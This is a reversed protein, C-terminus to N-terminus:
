IENKYPLFTVKKGCHIVQFRQWDYTWEPINDELRAFTATFFFMNVITKALDELNNERIEGHSSNLCILGESSSNPFVKVIVKQELNKADLPEITYFIKQYVNTVFQNGKHFHIFFYMYPLDYTKGKINGHASYLLTRKAPPLEVLIIGEGTKDDIKKIYKIKM